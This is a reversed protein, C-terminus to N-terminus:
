FQEVRPSWPLILLGYLTWWSKKFTWQSGKTDVGPIVPLAQANQAGEAAEDDSMEAMSIEIASHFFQTDFETPSYTDQVRPPLSGPDPRRIRQTSTVDIGHAFDPESSTSDNVSWVSPGPSSNPVVTSANSQELDELDQNVGSPARSRTVRDTPEAPKRVRKSPM